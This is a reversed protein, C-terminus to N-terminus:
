FNLGCDCKFGLLGTKKNCESCRKKPAPTKKQSAPAETVKKEEMKPAEETQMLADKNVEPTFSSTLTKETVKSPTETRSPDNIEGVSTANANQKDTFCKSCMYNTARGGYFQQCRSCLKTEDESFDSSNNYEM